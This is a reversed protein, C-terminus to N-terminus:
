VHRFFINLAYPFDHLRNGKAQQRVPIPPDQMCTGHPRDQPALFIRNIKEGIGASVLVIFYGPIRLHAQAESIRATLFIYRNGTDCFDGGVFDLHRLQPRNGCFYPPSGRVVWINTQDLNCRVLSLDPISGAVKDAIQPHRKRQHAPSRWAVGAFM